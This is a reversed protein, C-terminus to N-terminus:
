RSGTVLAAPDDVMVGTEMLIQCLVNVECEPSSGIPLRIADCKLRGLLKLCTKLRANALNAPATGYIAKALPYIVEHAKRAAKLDNRRVAADLAIILEPVIIALSVLSGESGLVYSTLSARRRFGYCRGVIRKTATL